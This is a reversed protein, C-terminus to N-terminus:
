VPELYDDWLDIYVADHENATEGWLERAAFRVTYVHQPHEGNFHANTDPFVFVGHDRTITGARGRVYRPLRTHGQPHVNRARVNQGTKFRPAISVDRSTSSGRRSLKIVSDATLAPTARSADAAAKGSALEERAVLRHKLLLQELAAFWREYYSMRLYDAAPILEREYRSADINWKGWAGMARVLAYARREWEAHFVPEDKEPEIAGMGHMGGMDHVSNM